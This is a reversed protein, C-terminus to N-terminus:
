VYFSISNDLELLCYGASPYATDEVQTYFMSYYKLLEFILCYIEVTQETYYVTVARQIPSYGFNFLGLPTSLKPYEGRGLATITYQLTYM